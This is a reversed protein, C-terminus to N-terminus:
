HKGLHNLVRSWRPALAQETYTKRMLEINNSRKKNVLSQLTEFDIQELIALGSLEFGLSSLNSFSSTSERLVMPKGMLLMAYVAYLGQQRHQAFVTIDINSLLQDYACKELMKTIPKFKNGFINTQKKMQSM